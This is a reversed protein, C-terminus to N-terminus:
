LIIEGNENIDADLFSNNYRQVFERAFKDTTGMRFIITKIDNEDKGYYGLNLFYENKQKIDAKAGSMGGLVAGVPGFLIDGAIGRALVSKKKTEINTKDIIDFSIVKDNKIKFTNLVEVKRKFVGKINVNEIILYENDFTLICHSLYEVNPLGQLYTAGMKEYNIKGM